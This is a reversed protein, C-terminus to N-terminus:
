RIWGAIFYSALIIVAWLPLSFLFGYALGTLKMRPEWSRRREIFVEMDYCEGTGYETKM